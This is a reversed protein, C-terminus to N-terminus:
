SNQPFTWSLGKEIVKGHSLFKSLYSKNLYMSKLMMRYKYVTVFSYVRM